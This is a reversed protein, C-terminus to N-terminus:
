GGLVASGIHQDNGYLPNGAQQRYDLEWPGDGSTTGGGIASCGADTHDYVVWLGEDRPALCLVRAGDLVPGCRGGTDYSLPQHTFELEFQLTCGCPLSADADLEGDVRWGVNCRPDGDSSWELWHHEGSWSAPAPNLSPVGGSPAEEVADHATGPEGCALLMMTVM